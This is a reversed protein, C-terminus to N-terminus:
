VPQNPPLTPSPQYPKIRPLRGGSHSLTLALQLIREVEQRFTAYFYKRGMLVLCEEVPDLLKFIHGLPDDAIRHDGIFCDPFFTGVDKELLFDDLREDFHEWANRLKRDFLASQESLTFAARLKEGRAAKLKDTADPSKKRVLSPWFYRSLAAAHGMAEQLVSILYEADDTQGKAADYEEFSRMARRASYNISHLYFVEAQPLIGDYDGFVIGARRAREETPLRGETM